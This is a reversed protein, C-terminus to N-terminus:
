YSDYQKMLEWYSKKTLEDENIKLKNALDIISKEDPGEIELFSPIKSILPKDFDIRCDGIKYSMRYKVSFIGDGFNLLKLANKFQNMQDLNIKVSNERFSKAFILKLSNISDKIEFDIDGGKGYWRFRVYDKENNCLYFLTSVTDEFILEANLSDLISVYDLYKKDLVKVEIENQVAIM